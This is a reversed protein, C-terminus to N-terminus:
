KAELPHGGGGGHPLQSGWFVFLFWLVSCVSPSSSRVCRSALSLDGTLLVQSQRQPELSSSPSWTPLVLRVSPLLTEQLLWRLIVMIYIWGGSDTAPHTGGFCPPPSAMRPQVSCQSGWCLPAPLRGFTLGPWGMHLVHSVHAVFTLPFREQGLLPVPDPSFFM